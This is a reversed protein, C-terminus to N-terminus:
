FANVKPCPTSLGPALVLSLDRKFEEESNFTLYGEKRVCWHWGYDTAGHLMTTEIQWESVSEFSATGDAVTQKTTRMTEHLLGNRTRSILIAEAGRVPQSAQDRVTIRAAPQLTKYIPYPGCGSVLVTASLVALAALKM